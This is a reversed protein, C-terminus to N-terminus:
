QIAGIMQPVDVWSGDRRSSERRGSEAAEAKRRDPSHWIGPHPRIVNDGAEAEAAVGGGGDDDLRTLASQRWLKETPTGTGDVYEVLIRPEDGRVTMVGIVEGVIGSGLIEVADGDEFDVEYM